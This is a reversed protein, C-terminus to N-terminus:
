YFTLIKILIYKFLYKYVFKESLFLSMFIVRIKIFNLKELWKIKDFNELM